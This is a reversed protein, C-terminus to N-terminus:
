FPPLLGSPSVIHDFFILGARLRYNPQDLAFTIDFPKAHRRARCEKPIHPAIKLSPM